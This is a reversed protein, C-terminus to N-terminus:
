YLISLFSIKTSICICLIFISRCFLYWEIRHANGEKRKKKFFIDIDHEIDIIWIPLYKYCYYRDKNRKLWNLCSTHRALEAWAFTYAFPWIMQLDLLFEQITFDVTSEALFESSTIITLMLTLCKKDFKLVDTYVFSSM